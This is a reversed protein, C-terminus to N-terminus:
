TLLLLLSDILWCAKYVQRGALVRTAVGHWIWRRFLAYYTYLVVWGTKSSARVGFFSM